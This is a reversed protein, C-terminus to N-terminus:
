RFNQNFFAGKSPAAVFADFLEKSGAFSYVGGRRFTVTIVGDGRWGLASIATSDVPVEIEELDENDEYGPRIAALGAMILRPFAKAM